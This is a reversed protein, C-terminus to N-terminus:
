TGELYSGVYESGGSGDGGAQGAFLERNAWILCLVYGTRMTLYEFVFTYKVSGEVQISYRPAGGVMQHERTFGVEEEYDVVTRDVVRTWVGVERQENVWIMGSEGSAALDNLWEKRM